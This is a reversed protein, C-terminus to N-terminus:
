VDFHGHMAVMTQPMWVSIQSFRSPLSLHLKAAVLALPFAHPYPIEGIRQLGSQQLLAALTRQDFYLVHEPLKFSPWRQGMLRRWFSGMHPTALVIAGGPKLHRRLEAMFARPHYIHEILNNAVICDFRAHAPISDLGGEYVVDAYQRAMQAAQPSFDTGARVSFYGKAEDLLYGYGCGIELLSGSTIRRRAMARLFRRFTLRLAVEQDTYTTYGSGDGEFYADDRYIRLMEAESLRPSLYSLGCHQCRQVAYPPFTYTTVRDASQCFPCETHELAPTQIM